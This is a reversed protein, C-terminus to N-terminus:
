RSTRAMDRRRNSMSTKSRSNAKSMAQRVTNRGDTADWSSALGGEM